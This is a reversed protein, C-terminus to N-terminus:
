RGVLDSIEFKQCEGLAPAFVELGTDISVDDRRQMEPLLQRSTVRKAFGFFVRLFLSCSGNVRKTLIDYTGAWMEGARAEPARWPKM